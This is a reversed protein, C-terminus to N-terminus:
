DIGKVYDPLGMANNKYDGLWVLNTPEEWRFPAGIIEAGVAFPYQPSISNDLPDFNAEGEFIRDLTVVWNMMPALTSSSYPPSSPQKAIGQTAYAIGNIFIQRGVDNDIASQNIANVGISGDWYRNTGTILVKNTKTTGNLIGTIMGERDNQYCDRAWKLEQIVHVWRPDSPDTPYEHKSGWKEKTKIYWLVDEDMGLGAPIMMRVMGAKLFANFMFNPHEPNFKEPWKCMDNWFYDFFKFSMLNWDFAREWFYWDKTAKGAKSRIPLPYGCPQTKMSMVSEREFNECMMYIAARKLEAMLIEKDVFPHRSKQAEKYKAIYSDLAEKYKSKAETVKDMIEEFVNLQWETIDVKPPSILYRLQVAFKKIGETLQISVSVDPGPINTDKKLHDSETVHDKGKKWHAYWVSEGGVKLEIQGGMNRKFTLEPDSELEIKDITYGDTIIIVDTTDSEGQYTKSHWNPLMQKPPQELNKLDYDKVYASFLDSKVDAWNAPCNSFKPEVIKFGAMMKEYELHEYLASPSPILLEVTLRKGYGYVQGEVVKSVYFYKGVNHEPLDRFGHTNVEKNETTIRRSNLTRVETQIKSVAKNVSEKFKERAEKQAKEYSTSADINIKYATGAKESGGKYEAKADLDAKFNKEMENQVSFRETVQLDREESKTVTTETESYEEITRTLSHVRERHEGAMVNEIYALDSAKYHLVKDRLVLTDTVYYDIEACSPDPPLCVPEDCICKCNDKPLEEKTAGPRPNSGVDKGEGAQIETNLPADNDKGQGALVYSHHNQTQSKAVAKISKRLPSEEVLLGPIHDAKKVLKCPDILWLWQPLQLAVDLIHTIPRAAIAKRKDDCRKANSAILSCAAITKLLRQVDLSQQGLNRQVVAATLQGKLRTVLSPAIRLHDAIEVESFREAFATVNEDTLRGQNAAFFDIAAQSMRDLDHLTKIGYTKQYDGAIDDLQEADGADFAAKLDIYLKEYVNLKDQLKSKKDDEVQVQSFAESTADLWEEAHFMEIADVPVETAKAARSSSTGKSRPQILIASQQLSIGARIDPQRDVHVSLMDSM